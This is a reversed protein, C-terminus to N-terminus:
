YVVLSLELIFLSFGRMSPSTFPYPSSYVPIAVYKTVGEGEGEGEGGGGGGGGAGGGSGGAGGKGKGEGGRWVGFAGPSPSPSPSPSYIVQPSLFPSVGWM